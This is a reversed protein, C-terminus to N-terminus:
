RPGFGKGNRSLNLGFYLLYVFLVFDNKFFMGQACFGLNAWAQIADRNALPFFGNGCKLVLQFTGFVFARIKSCFNLKFRLDLEYLFVFLCCTKRISKKGTM